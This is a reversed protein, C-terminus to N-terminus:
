TPLKLRETAPDPELPTTEVISASYSASTKPLQDKEMRTLFLAPLNSRATASQSKVQLDQRTTTSIKPLILTEPSPSIDIELVPLLKLRPPSMALAAIAKANAQTAPTPFLKLQALDQSTLM